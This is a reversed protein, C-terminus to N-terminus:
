LDTELSGWPQKQVGPNLFRYGRAKLEELFSRIDDVEVRVSSGPCCDGHHETLHIKCSGRSIGMYLPMTDAFRHEFDVQFGLYDVYFERAKSEDFIRFIPTPPQLETM